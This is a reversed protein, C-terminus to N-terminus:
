DQTIVCRTPVIILISITAPQSLIRNNYVSAWLSGRPGPVQHGGVPCQYHHTASIWPSPPIVLCFVCGNNWCSGNNNVSRLGDFICNLYLPAENKMDVGLILRRKPSFQIFNWHHGPQHWQRQQLSAGGTDAQSLIHQFDQWFHSSQGRQGSQWRIWCQDCQIVGSLGSWASM